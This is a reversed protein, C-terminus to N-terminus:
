KTLTYIANHLMLSREFIVPMCLSSWILMEGSIRWISKLSVPDTLILWLLFEFFGWNKLLKISTQNIYWLFGGTTCTCNVIKILNHLQTVMEYDLELVSSHREM